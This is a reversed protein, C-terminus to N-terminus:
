ATRLGVFAALRALWGPPPEEEMAAVVGEVLAPALCAKEAVAEGEPLALGEGGLRAVICTVNDPGGAENARAILTEAAEEPSAAAELVDRIAEDPVPGSLGDSCVLLVDGRAARLEVLDVEVHPSTGVAQLIVHGFAFSPVEEPLLQGREVLLTALTQDRTLQTLRGGRLLYARSDGVQAVLLVEGRLACVTATTGM